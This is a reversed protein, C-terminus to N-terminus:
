RFDELSDGVPGLAPKNFRRNEIITVQTGDGPVSPSSLNQLNQPYAPTASKAGGLEENQPYIKERNESVHWGQDGEFGEFGPKSPKSPEEPHCNKQIQGRLRALYPNM